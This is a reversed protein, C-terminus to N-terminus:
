DMAHMVSCTYLSSIAQHNVKRKQIHDVCRSPPRHALLLPFQLKVEAKPTTWQSGGFHQGVGLVIAGQLGPSGWFIPAHEALFLFGDALVAGPALLLDGHDRSSFSAPESISRQLWSQGIVQQQSSSEDTVTTMPSYTSQSLSLSLGTLMALRSIVVLVTAFTWNVPNPLLVTKLGAVSSLPSPPITM